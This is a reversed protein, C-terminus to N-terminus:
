IRVMMLSRWRPMFDEIQLFGYSNGFTYSGIVDASLSTFADSLNVPNGSGAFTQLRACLTDVNSKVTSELRGVSAKSFHPNLAARRM